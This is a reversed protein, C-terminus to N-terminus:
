GVDRVRMIGIFELHFIDKTKLVIFVLTFLLLMM